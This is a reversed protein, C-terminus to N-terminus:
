KIPASTELVAKKLCFSYLDCDLGSYLLWMSGGDRDMWKPPFRHHYTRCDEGNQTSWHDDYYVTSWPGWPEAADFVGLAATHTAEKEVLHSTTLIYRELASNYTIAIRQTGKSDEFIPKRDAIRSSWVPQGNGKFGAFFEYDARVMLAKSGTRALVIRPSYGYASDNDQSAIYVFDDRADQYDKGFQVFAPCGFTDAFHWDAWTWSAGSDYSCALRSNTFDDLGPPKYNRVFMYLVGSVMILDSAKIGKRGGGKVTDADSKFNQGAIETPDGHVTAFGMSLDPDDPSFGRGDCFVTILDGREEWAIPWNDGHSYGTAKIVEEAWTM